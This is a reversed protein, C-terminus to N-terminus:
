SWHRQGAMPQHSSSEEARDEKGGSGDCAPPSNNLCILAFSEQQEAAVEGAHCLATAGGRHPLVWGLCGKGALFSPQPFSLLPKGRM